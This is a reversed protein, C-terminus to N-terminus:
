SEQMWCRQLRAVADAKSLGRVESERLGVRTLLLHVVDAPLANDPVAPVGRDPRRGDRVCTWFVDETVDLQDRLFHAWLSPGYGTRDPPRSIRTRLVRGDPLALKYTVHHTGSRGNADRVRGWGEVLCFREHDARTPAPWTM